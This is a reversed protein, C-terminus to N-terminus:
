RLTVTAPKLGPANVVGTAQTAAPTERETPLTTTAIIMATSAAAMGAGVVMLGVDALSLRARRYLCATDDEGDRCSAGSQYVSGRSAAAVLLVGAVTGVANVVYATTKRQPARGLYCGPFLTLVATVVLISKRM